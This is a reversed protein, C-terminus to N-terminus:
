QALIDTMECQMLGKKPSPLARCCFLHHDSVESACFDGLPTPIRRQDIETSNCLRVLIHTQHLQVAVVSLKKKQAEARFGRLRM